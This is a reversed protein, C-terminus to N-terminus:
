IEDGANSNERKYTSLLFDIMSNCIPSAVRRKDRILFFNRRMPIDKVKLSKLSGKDLETAIARISLISIGLGAKIGEKVATSTGLRAVVKFSAMDKESSGSIYREMIQLTGSGIERLIFSEEYLEDLAIEERQNWRHWAPIAVVLEDEWLDINIIASHTSMSGIVGLEIDGNLVMSEIEVTDAIKMTISVHPHKERFHGMAKPLIYEGPITSGGIVIEGSKVGLFNQMELRATEKMELLLLAHKYLLEGAKTPVVKRGLRDLLQVGVMNELTAIRESVSAQALFVKRAAKSFSGLDVVARFIELQRMDFDIPGGKIFSKKKMTKEYDIIIIWFINGLNL